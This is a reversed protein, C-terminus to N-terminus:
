EEKTDKPITSKVFEMAKDMVLAHEDPLPKFRAFKVLDAMEFIYRLLQVSEDNPLEKPLMYMLDSTTMEIADIHFRRSIYKRLIDTLKSHYPKITGNQWLKKRKLSELASIAAIHAPVDPKEWITLKEAKKPPKKLYRVLFFAFAGIALALLIYPLLEKFTYPIHFLPKIDRYHSDLDVEVGKVKLLGAQTEFLITDGDNIQLFKLPPIPILDDEWATISHAQRLSLINEENRLTDPKGFRLVEINKATAEEIDPWILIGDASVEVDIVMRSPEGISIEDPELSLRAQQAFVALPVSFFLVFIIGIYKTKMSQIKRL